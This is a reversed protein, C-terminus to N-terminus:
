RDFRQLREEEPTDRQQVRPQFLQSHLNALCLERMYMALHLRMRALCGAVTYDEISQLVNQSQEM